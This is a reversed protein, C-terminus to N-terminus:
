RVHSIVRQGDKDEEVAVVQNRLIEPTEGMSMRMVNLNDESMNTMSRIAFQPANNLCIYIRGIYEGLLGLLLMIMGGIFMLAAMLSSYGMVMSPTLIRRIVVFLGYAFGILATIAGLLSALRLPKVSFATFGNMLLGVLKSLSYGSKGEAREQHDIDVNAINRTVRLMLGHVFPYANKYKVIEEAVERRIVCYSNIDIDNPKGILVHSMLFSLKSGLRRFWNHKKEPYRASVWDYGGDILKDILRFMESPPNQGDDDLSVVYDGSVCNYGAMLASHQGFNKMLDIVKIKPNAALEMLVKLTNDPSHDNICIIEYDFRGDKEVTAIVEDVVAKISHESRYCPIVFSLKKMSLVCSEM